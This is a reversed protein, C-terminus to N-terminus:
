LRRDGGFLHRVCAAAQSGQGLERARQPLPDILRQPLRDQRQDVLRALDQAFGGDARRQPYAAARHGIRDGPQLGLPQHIHHGLGAREDRAKGHLFDAFAGKQALRDLNGRDFAHCALNALCLQLQQAPVQGHLRGQHGIAVNRAKVRHIGRHMFQQQGEGAKWLQRLDGFGGPQLDVTGPLQDQRHRAPHLRGQGLVPRDKGCDLRAVGRGRADRHLRM